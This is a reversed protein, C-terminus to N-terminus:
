RKGMISKVKIMKEFYLIFPILLFLLGIFTIATSVLSLIYATNINQSVQTDDSLLVTSIMSLIGAVFVAVLSVIFVVSMVIKVVNVDKRQLHHEDFGGEYHTLLYTGGALFVVVFCIAFAFILLNRSIRIDTVVTYLDNNITLSVGVVDIVAAAFLLILSLIFSLTM